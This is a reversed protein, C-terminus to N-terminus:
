INFWDKEFIFSSDFIFNDSFIVCYFFKFDDFKPRKKYFIIFLFSYFINNFFNFFVLNEIYFKQIKKFIKIKNFFLIRLFKTYISDKIVLIDVDVLKLISIVYYILYNLIFYLFYVGNEPISISDYLPIFIISLYIISTIFISTNLSKFNLNFM